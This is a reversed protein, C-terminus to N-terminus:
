EGPQRRRLLFRETTSLRGASFQRLAGKLYPQLERMWYRAFGAGRIEDLSKRYHDLLGRALTQGAQRGGTRVARSLWRANEPLERWAAVAIASSLELPSRGQAAAEERLERWQAALRGAAPMAAHPIRSAEDRISQWERRLTAVDLPPTNATEALRGATRELGDLLDDVTHFRDGRELLGDRELAESIEGILERGGGALDALAALVWVPSARFAAIGAIEVANGLTRRVLFDDPLRDSAPYTGEVEGVQEILFRLTSEVLSGYLRSRRLRAPLLVDGLERAAGGAVAAISRVLREPLSGLYHGARERDM